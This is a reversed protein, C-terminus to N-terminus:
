PRCACFSVSLLNTAFGAICWQAQMFNTKLEDRLPFFFLLDEFLDDTELM